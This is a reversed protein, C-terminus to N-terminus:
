DPRAAPLPDPEEVPPFFQIYADRLQGLVDVLNGQHILAGAEPIKIDPQFRLLSAWVLARLDLASIQSLVKDVGAVADDGAGSAAAILKGVADTLPKGRLEEFAALANFDLCVKFEKDAVRVTVYDTRPDKM